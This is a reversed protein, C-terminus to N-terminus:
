YKLTTDFLNLLTEDRLYRQMNAVFMEGAREKYVPSFGSTHPTIILNPTKWIPNDAPLPAQTFVDVVAGGLRKEALADMMA